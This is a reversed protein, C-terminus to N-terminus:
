TNIPMFQVGTERYIREKPMLRLVEKMARLNRPDRYHYPNQLLEGGEGILAYDVGWADVGISEIDPLDSSSLARRIESWILVVDWHSSKGYTVPHNSFRHIQNIRLSGSEVGGLFVRGTEAGLDIAIHAGTEM